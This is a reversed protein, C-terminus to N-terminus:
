LMIEPSLKNISLIVINEQKSEQKVYDIIWNIKTGKRISMTLNGFGFGGPYSYTYSILYQPHM